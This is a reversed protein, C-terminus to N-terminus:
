RGGQPAPGTPAVTAQWGGCFGVNLLEERLEETQLDRYQRRCWPEAEPEAESRIGDQLLIAALLMHLMPEYGPFDNSLADREALAARMETEADALDHSRLLYYGRLAHTRPDHPYLRVLALMREGYGPSRMARSSGSPLSAAYREGVAAYTPYYLAVMLLSFAALALGGWGIGAALRRRGPHVQDVPWAVRMALGMVLGALLGGGHCNYDIQPGGQLSSFPILAPIAVRACAFQISRRWGRAHPHFSCVFAASVLGMIAGSAGVGFTQAPNCALAALSGGLGGVVFTAGLWARGVLRELTAGALFLVIANGVIHALNMHLLVATVLRWPEAAGFVLDRRLAGLAILSNPGPAMGRVPGINFRYEAAFVITLGAIIALTLVPAPRPATRAAREAKLEPHIPAPRYVAPEPQTARPASPAAPRASPMRRGFTANEPM